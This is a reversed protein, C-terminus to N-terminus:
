QPPAAIAASPIFQPNQVGLVQFQPKMPAAMMQPEQEPEGHVSTGTAQRSYAQAFLSKEPTAEM